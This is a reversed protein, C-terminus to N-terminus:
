EASQPHQATIILSDGIHVQLLALVLSPVVVGNEVIRIPNLCCRFGKKSSGVLYSEGTITDDVDVLKLRKSRKIADIEDRRCHV